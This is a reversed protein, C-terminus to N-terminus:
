IEIKPSTIPANVGTVNRQKTEDMHIAPHLINILKALSDECMHYRKEFGGKTHRCMEFHKTMNIRDYHYRDRYDRASGSHSCLFNSINYDDDEGYLIEQIVDNDVFPLSM